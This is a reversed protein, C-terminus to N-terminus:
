YEIPEGVLVLKVDLADHEGALQEIRGPVSRRRSSIPACQEVQDTRNVLLYRGLAVTSASSVGRTRRRNVGPIERADIVVVQYGGLKM